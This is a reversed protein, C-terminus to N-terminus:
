CSQHARLDAHFRAISDHPDIVFAAIGRVLSNDIFGRETITLETGSSSPRLEYTWAGGYPLDDDAIRVVRREPARQEDVTYTVAGDGTHEVFRTEDIREVKEVDSRWCPFSEVDSIIAFVEAPPLDIEVTRSAVHDRPQTAGYVALAGVLLALGAVSYVVIKIFRKM